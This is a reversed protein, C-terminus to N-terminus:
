GDLERKKLWALVSEVLYVRSTRDLGITPFGKEKRLNDLTRRSINLSVLLDLESVVQGSLGNVVVQGQRTTTEQIQQDEM